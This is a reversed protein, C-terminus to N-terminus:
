VVVGSADSAGRRLETAQVINRYWSYASERAGICSTLGSQVVVKLGLLPLPLVQSSRAGATGFRGTLALCILRVSSNEM